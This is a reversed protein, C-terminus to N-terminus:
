LSHAVCVVSFHKLKQKHRVPKITSQPEFNIPCVPDKGDIKHREVIKRVQCGGRCQKYLKCGDCEKNNQVLGLYKKLKESEDWFKKISRWESYSGLDYDDMLCPTIRGDPNITILEQAGVCGKLDPIGIETCNILPNSPITVKIQSSYKERLKYAYIISQYYENKTKGYYGIEHNLCREPNHFKVGDVGIKIGLLIMKELMELPTDYTYTPKIFIETPSNKKNRYEILKKIGQIARDFNDKGRIKSNSEEDYGDLSISVALLNYNTLIECVEDTFLTGNSALSTVIGYKAATKLYNNLGAINTTPEGGALHIRMAGIKYMENIIETVQKEPMTIVGLHNKNYCHTCRLNCVNTFDFYYELPANLRNKQNSIIERKEGDFGLDKLDQFLSQSIKRTSKLLYKELEAKVDSNPVFYGALRNSWILPGFFERRITVGDITKM